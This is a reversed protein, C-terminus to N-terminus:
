LKTRARYHTDVTSEGSWSSQVGGAFLYKVQYRYTSEPVLDDLLIFNNTLSRTVYREPQSSTVGHPAYRFLYGTVVSSRAGSCKSLTDPWTIYASVHYQVLSRFRINPTGEPIDSVHQADAVLPPPQDSNTVPVRKAKSSPPKEGHLAASQLGNEEAGGDYNYDEDDDDEEPSPPSTNEADDAKDGDDARGRNESHESQISTATTANDATEKVVDSSTPLPSSHFTSSSSSSSSSSPSRLDTDFLSM